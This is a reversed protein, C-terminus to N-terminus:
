AGPVLVRLASEDAKELAVEALLSERDRGITAVALTRGEHRYAVACDRAAPDGSVDARDWKEAHGVYNIVLDHHASWFFPVRAFDEGRGVIVKALSLAHQEAVVWHEIRVGNVRAVDGIAYV